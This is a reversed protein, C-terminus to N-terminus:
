LIKKAKSYKMFHAVKKIKQSKIRDIESVPLTQLIQKKQLMEITACLQYFEILVQKENSLEPTEPHTDELGFRLSKSLAQQVEACEEMAVIMLYEQEKM